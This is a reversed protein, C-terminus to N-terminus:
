EGKIQKFDIKNVNLYTSLDEIQKRTAEIQFTITYRKANTDVEGDVSKANELMNAMSRFEGLKELAKPLDLSETLEKLAIEWEASNNCLNKLAVKNNIFKENEQTLEEKIKTLSYSKNFWENKLLKELPILGSGVEEYAKSIAVLKEQKDANEYAKIQSDINAIAEDIIKTLEKCQNKLEGFTIKELRAREDTIFKKRKNLYARDVKAESIADETVVLNKYKSCLESLKEKLVPFEQISYSEQNAERVMPVQFIEM